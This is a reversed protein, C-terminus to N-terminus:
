FLIQLLQFMQLGRPDKLGSCTSGHLTILSESLHEPLRGAPCFILESQIVALMEVHIVVRSSRPFMAFSRTVPLCKNVAKVQESHLWALSFNLNM